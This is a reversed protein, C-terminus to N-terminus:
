AARREVPPKDVEFLPSRAAPDIRIPVGLLTSKDEGWYQNHEIVNMIEMELAASPLDSGDNLWWSADFTMPAPVRTRSYKRALADVTERCMVWRCGINARRLHYSWQRMLDALENFDPVYYAKRVLMGSRTMTNIFTTPALLIGSPDLERMIALLADTDDPGQWQGM